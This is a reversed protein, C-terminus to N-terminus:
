YSLSFLSLGWRNKTSILETPEVRKRSCMSITVIIYEDIHLVMLTSM